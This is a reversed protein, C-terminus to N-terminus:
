ADAEKINRAFSAYGLVGGATLLAIAAVFLLASGFFAGFGDDPAEALERRRDFRDLDCGPDDLCKSEQVDWEEHWADNDQRNQESQQFALIAGWAVLGSLALISLASVGQFFRNM